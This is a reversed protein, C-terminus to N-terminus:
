KLPAPPHAPLGAERLRQEELSHQQLSYKLAEAEQFVAEAEDPWPEQHKEQPPAKGCGAVALSLLLLSPLLAPNPYLAHM